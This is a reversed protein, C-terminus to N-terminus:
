LSLPPFIREHVDKFHHVPQKSAFDFIKISKDASGTVLYKMDSTMAIAKVGEINFYYTPIREIDIGQHAEKIHSVEQKTEADLIKISRDASGSVIFKYDPSFLACFVEGQHIKPICDLHNSRKLNRKEEFMRKLEEVSEVGEPLLDSSEIYSERMDKKKQEYTKSKKLSVARSQKIEPSKEEKEDIETQLLRKTETMETNLKGSQIKSGPSEDLYKKASSPIM